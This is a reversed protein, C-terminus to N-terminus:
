LMGLLEEETPEPPPAPVASYSMAERYREPDIRNCSRCIDSWMGELRDFHEADQVKAEGCIVCVREIPGGAPGPRPELERYGYRQAYLELVRQAVHGETTQGVFWPEAGGRATMERLISLRLATLAHLPGDTRIGGSRREDKAQVHWSAVMASAYRNADDLEELTLSGLILEAETM